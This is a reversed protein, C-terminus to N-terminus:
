LTFSPASQNSIICTAAQGTSSQVLFSVYQRYYPKISAKFAEDQYYPKVRSCIPMLDVDGAELYGLMVNFLYEVDAERNGACWNCILTIDDKQRLCVRTNGFVTPICEIIWEDNVQFRNQSYQDAPLVQVQLPIKQKM